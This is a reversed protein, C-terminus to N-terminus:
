EDKEKRLITDLYEQEDTALYTTHSNHMSLLQEALTQAKKYCIDSYFLDNKTNHLHSQDVWYHVKELMNTVENDM